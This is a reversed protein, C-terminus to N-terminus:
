RHRTRTGDCVPPSHYTNRSLYHRANMNGKAALLQLMEIFHNNREIMVLWQNATSSGAKMRCADEFTTGVSTGWLLPAINDILRLEGAESDAAYFDQERLYGMGKAYERRERDAAVREIGQIM